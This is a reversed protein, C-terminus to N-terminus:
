IIKPLNRELSMLVEYSFKSFKLVFELTINKLLTIIVSTNNEVYLGFHYM